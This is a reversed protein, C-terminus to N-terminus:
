DEEDVAKIFDDVTEFIETPEKSAKLIRDEFSRHMKSKYILFSIFDEVEKLGTDSLESLLREIRNITDSQM